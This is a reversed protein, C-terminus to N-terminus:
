GVSKMNMGVWRRWIDIYLYSFNQLEKPTYYVEHTVSQAEGVLAQKSKFRSRSAILPPMPLEQPSESTDQLAVVEPSAMLLEEPM